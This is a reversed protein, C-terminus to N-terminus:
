VMTVLKVCCGQGVSESVVLNAQMQVEFLRLLNLSYSKAFCQLVDWDMFLWNWLTSASGLTHIAAAAKISRM